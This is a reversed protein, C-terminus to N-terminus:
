SSELQNIAWVERARLGEAFQIGVAVGNPGALWRVIAKAETPAPLGPLHFRVHIRDGVALQPGEGFVIRMGGAAIDKSLADLSRDGCTVAVEGDFDMRDHARREM